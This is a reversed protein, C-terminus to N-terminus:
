YKEISHLIASLFSTAASNKLGFSLIVGGFIRTHIYTGILYEISVVFVNNSDALRLAIHIYNISFLFRVIYRYM